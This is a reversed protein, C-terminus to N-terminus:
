SLTNDSLRPKVSRGDSEIVELNLTHDVLTGKSFHEKDDVFLGPLHVGELSDVLVHENLLLLDGIDLVLLVNQELRVM